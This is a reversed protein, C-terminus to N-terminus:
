GSPGAELANARAARARDPEAPNHVSPGGEWEAGAIADVGITM